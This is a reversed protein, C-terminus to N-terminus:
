KMAKEIKAKLYEAYKQHKDVGMIADLQAWRAKSVAEAYKEKDAEAKVYRNIRDLTGLYCANVNDIDDLQVATMGLTNKLYKQNDARFAKLKMVKQEDTLESWKQATITTAAVLCILISFIIKKM